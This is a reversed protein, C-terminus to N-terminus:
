TLHSVNKVTCTVGNLLVKADEGYNSHALQWRYPCTLLLVVQVLNFKNINSALLVSTAAAATFNSKIIVM